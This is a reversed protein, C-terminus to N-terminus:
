FHYIFPNLPPARPTAEGYLVKKLITHNLHELLLLKINKSITVFTIFM